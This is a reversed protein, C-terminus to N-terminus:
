DYCESIYKDMLDKNEFEPFLENFIYLKKNYELSNKAFKVRQDLSCKLAGVGFDENKNSLMISILGTLQDIIKYSVNWTDSHYHSIGSICLATDIKFRGSLTHIRIIPANQPYDKPLKIEGM